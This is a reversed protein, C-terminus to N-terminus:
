LSFRDTKGEFVNKYYGNGPWLPKILGSEWDSLDKKLEGVKAANAAALNHLEAKDNKLNFLATIKDTQNIVLKWDGKRIAKNGGSRWCLASHPAPGGDTNLYSVLDVGDYRRDKPLESASVAAATAFIDLSSVPTEVVSAPKVKGKWKLVFPVNVGGEYLSMKGGRLPANDTAHTYTAGGNDSLFFILTNEELNLAKVKDNIEGIAKDLGTILSYYVAKNLDNVGKSRYHDVDKQYAQFPTHPANFPVYLFFPKDKNQEIYQVAEKALADTYFEKVEIIKDNRRKAAAGTTGTEWIHSDMVGPHHVNITKTSDDFYSYAEYFGYHYDFGRRLPLFQESFGQHWKGVIGTQYGNKKLLDAITIEQVPLGQQAIAKESPVEDYDIFELEQLDILNNAAWKIFRNSRYRNVPQLEYGFRQQYRGTLLGARSPSCIPATVYAENFLAGEQSLATINPADVIQNGYIPLDTKGLDDAVLVIINPRRLSTDKIPEKLFIEKAKIAEEDQPIEFRDSGLPWFAWFALATLILAIALLPKRFKKM